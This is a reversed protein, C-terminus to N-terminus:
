GCAEESPRALDAYGRPPSDDAGATATLRMRSGRPTALQTARDIVPDLVIWQVVRRALRAGENSQENSKACFDGIIQAVQGQDLDVEVGIQERLWDLARDIERRAIAQLTGQELPRFLICEDVRNLFEPRFEETPLALLKKRLRRRIEWIGDPGRPVDQVLRAWEGAGINATLVITCEYAERVSGAPDEIRGEDLLRLVTHYVEGKAKEFEDFLIVCRPNDRLGNTLKGEGYGVYGPPAGVLMTMSERTQYQGMELFILSEESGYAARALAKALETKGTGSEGCFLFVGAPKGPRAYGLRLRKVYRMVQDVAEPQGLIADLLYKETAALDERSGEPSSETTEDPEYQAVLGRAADLDLGLDVLLRRAFTERGLFALALDAETIREAGRVAAREGAEELLRQVAPHLAERAGALPATASRTGRRLGLMVAEQARKPDIKQQYLAMQMASGRPALLGLLLHRADSQEHGLAETERGTLDLVRLGSPSFGERRLRQSASPANEPTFVTLPPAAPGSGRRLEAAIEPLDVLGGLRAQVRDGLNDLLGALLAAERIVSHGSADALAAAADLARVAEPELASRLLFAPPAASTQRQCLAELGSELQVPTVGRERFARQTVGGPVHALAMLFHASEVTASRTLAAAALVQGFGRTAAVLPPDFCM